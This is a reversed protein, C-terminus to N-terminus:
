SQIDDERDITTWEMGLGKLSRFREIRRTRRRPKAWLGIVTVLFCFVGIAFGLWDRMDNLM